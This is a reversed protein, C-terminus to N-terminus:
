HLRVHDDSKYGDVVHRLDATGEDGVTKTDEILKKLAGSAINDEIRKVFTNIREEAHRLRTLGHKIKEMIVEVDSGDADREFRFPGQLQTEEIYKASGSVALGAICLAIAFSPNM